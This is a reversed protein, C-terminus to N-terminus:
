KATVAKSAVPRSLMGEFSTEYETGNGFSEALITGDVPPFAEMVTVDGPPVGVRQVRCLEVSKLVHDGTTFPVFLLTLTESVM